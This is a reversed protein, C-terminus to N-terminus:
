SRLSVRCNSYVRPRLVSVADGPSLGRPSTRQDHIRSHHVRPASVGRHRPVSPHPLPVLNPARGLTTRSRCNSTPPKPRPPSHSGTPARGPNNKLPLQLHTTKPPPPQNRQPARGLTTRSRCNSTPPKPRPPSTADDSADDFADFVPMKSGTAPLGDLPQEQAATPPPHNQAPPAPQTTAPTTSLM